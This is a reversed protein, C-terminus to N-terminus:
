NRRAGFVGDSNFIQQSKKIAELCKEVANKESRGDHNKLRHWLKFCLPHCFTECSKSDIYFHLIRKRDALVNTMNEHDKPLKQYFRLLDWVNGWVGVNEEWSNAEHAKLSVKSYGKEMTQRRLSYFTESDDDGQM